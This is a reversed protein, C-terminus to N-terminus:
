PALVTYGLPEVGCILLHYQCCLFGHLFMETNLEALLFILTKRTWVRLQTLRPNTRVLNVDAAEEVLLLSYFKDLTVPTTRALIATCFPRNKKPLAVLVKHVFESATLSSDIMVLKNALM